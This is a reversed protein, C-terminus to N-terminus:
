RQSVNSKITDEGRIGEEFTASVSTTTGNESKWCSTVVVSYSRFVQAPEYSVQGSNGPLFHDLFKSHLPNAHITWVRFMCMHQSISGTRSGLNIQILCTSKEGWAAVSACKWDREKHEAKGGQMSKSDSTYGSAWSPQSPKTKSKRHLNLGGRGTGGERM